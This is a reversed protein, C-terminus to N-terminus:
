SVLRVCGADGDVEITQGDTIAQTGMGTGVVAPIRYERAVVACHSLIGGTDTVIAAATAFLPTWPPATTEAVLIEGQSLKGAEDLSRIVRATGQVRGPSGSHGTITDQADSPEVPDWGFFKGFAKTVLGPPPPGYDTGMFHPPRIAGYHGFEKKRQAVLDTHDTGDAGLAALSEETFLFFVDDATAIVGADALRRGIEMAVRRVRYTAQFDIWYGHDETLVVAAASAEALAEFEDRVNAPYGQLRQRVAALAEDREAARERLEAEPDREQGVYDKLNMIVPSPDEIWSPHCIGWMASRQGHQATFAELVKAFDRGEESEALAAVVDATAKEELIKRVADSERARRSLDWVARDVELTKNDFGQLLKQAEFVGDDAFLDHHLDDFLALAVYVPFAQEFHIAWLRQSEEWMQEFHSALDATSASALDFADWKDIFGKIEPLWEEDWRAQLRHISEMVLGDSRQGVEPMQEPAV